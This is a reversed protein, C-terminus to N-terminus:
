LADVTAIDPHPMGDRVTVGAGVRGVTVRGDAAIKGSKVQEEIVGPPAILIDAADGDSLRKALQPATGFQIKVQHGTERQFQEALKALGPEVAGASLVTIEAAMATTGGLAFLLATVGPLRKM